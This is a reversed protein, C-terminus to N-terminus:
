ATIRDEVNRRGAASNITFEQAAAFTLIHLENHRRSFLYNRALPLISRVGRYVIKTKYRIVDISSVRHIHYGCELRVVSSYGFAICRRLAIREDYKILVTVAFGCAILESGINRCSRASRTVARHDKQATVEIHICILLRATHLIKCFNVARNQYVESTM